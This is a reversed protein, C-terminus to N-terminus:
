VIPARWAELEEKFRGSRVRSMDPVLFAGLKFPRPHPFRTMCGISFTQFARPSVRRSIM